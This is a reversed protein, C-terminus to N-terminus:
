RVDLTAGVGVTVAHLWNISYGDNYAEARGQGESGGGLYRLSLYTNGVDGLRMGLQLNADLLAGTVFNDGGNIGPISAYSGDAEFAWYFQEALPWRVRAKLLPVPGINRLSRVREGNTDAVEIRANRLQLSVGLSLEREPDQVFDYLYSVRTFPFSYLFDVSKGAQFTIDDVILDRELPVRTAVELPQYVLTVVHRDNIPWDLGFRLWPYLNDQGGDRILDIDTGGKSFRLTHSLLGIYGAEASARIRLPKRATAISPAEVPAVAAASPAILLPQAAEVGADAYSPGASLLTALLLPGAWRSSRIKSRGHHFDTM